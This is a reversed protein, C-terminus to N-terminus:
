IIPMIGCQNAPMLRFITFNLFHMFRNFYNINLSRYQLRKRQFLILRNIENMNVKNMYLRDAEEYKMIRKKNRKNVDNHLDVLWRSLSQRSHLHNYIPNDRLQKLFHLQCIPCPLIAVVINYFFDVYLKKIEDSPNNPYYYTICHLTKWTMPGWYSNTM